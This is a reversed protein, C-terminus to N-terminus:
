FRKNLKPLEKIGKDLPKLGQKKEDENRVFWRFAEQEIDQDAMQPTHVPYKVNNPDGILEIANKIDEDMSNAYDDRLKEFSDMNDLNLAQKEKCYIDPLKDFDGDSKIWSKHYRNASFVDDEKYRKVRDIIFIGLPTINIKGLGIPKGMGIKHRYNESPKLAYCLLSLEKRTLNDFDIHFYFTLNKRLPKIVSKQSTNEGEYNTKWPERDGSYRHLYFKRGQPIHNNLSLDAKAIFNNGQTNNKPKFYFSPCPPKPSDLIKLTVEDLQYPESEKEDLIGFSFKLRSAFSLADIEEEEKKEDKVINEVFGFMQEAITIKERKPNFPLLEPSIKEFYDYSGGNCSKRWISSISIEEVKKPNNESVRFFVIDNERIKIDKKESNSFDNRKSGKLSYPLQEDVETREGALKEFKEIAEQVDFTSYKEMEPPYPIFIEHKKTTPINGERGEIGLVRIIGRTYKRKENPDTIKQYEEESIPDGIAKQGILFKLFENRNHRSYITKIYPSSCKIIGNNLSCNDALKIYWFKQNDACYSDPDNRSLFSESKKELQDGQKVYGDIFVKLMPKTFMQKYENPIVAQNNRWKLTPLAIPRLKLVTEGDKSTDKVIMGIASLSERMEARRSYQKEELVRLASNSAAEAISSILGRISSAPITPKGNMMFHYVKHPEISECRENGVFVPDETSIRCVIRGSYVDEKNVYRDHTLYDVENNKFKEKSVDDNIIDKVPVFHYPNYFYDSM